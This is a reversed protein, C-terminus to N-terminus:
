QVTRESLMERAEYRCRCGDCQAVKGPDCYRYTAAISTALMLEAPEPTPDIIELRFTM